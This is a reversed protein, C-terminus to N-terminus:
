ACVIMSNRDIENYGHHGTSHCSGFDNDRSEENKCYGSKSVSRVSSIELGETGLLWTEDSIEHLTGLYQYIFAHQYAMFTTADDDITLCQLALHEIYTCTIRHIYITGLSLGM